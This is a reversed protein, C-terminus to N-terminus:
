KIVIIPFVIADEGYRVRLMYAGTMQNAFAFNVITKGSPLHVNEWLPYVRSAVDVLDISVIYPSGATVNMVFPLTQDVVTRPVEITLGGNLRVMRLAGACTAVTSVAQSQSAVMCESDDIRSTVDLQVPSTWFTQAECRWDVAIPGKLPTEITVRCGIADTTVVAPLMAGSVQERVTLSQENIRLRGVPHRITFSVRAENRHTGVIAATGTVPIISGASHQEPVTITTATPIRYPQVIRTMLTDAGDTWRVRARVTTQQDGVLVDRFEFRLQENPNVLSPLVPGNLPRDRGDVDVRVFEVTRPRAGSGNVVVTGTFSDCAVVTSPLLVGADGEVPEDPPATTDGDTALGYGTLRIITTRREFRPAADHTVHVEATHSGVRRPTFSIPITAEFGPNASRHAFFSAPLAFADADAGTIVIDDITLQENGGVRFMTHTPLMITQNVVASGVHVDFGDITPLTGTGQLVVRVTDHPKWDVTYLVSAERFGVLEPIFQVRLVVSSLSDIALTAASFASIDFAGANGTVASRTLVANSLGRNILVVTSDDSLGVRRDPWRITVSPIEPRVGTVRYGVTAGVFPTSRITDRRERLGTSLPVVCVPVEMRGQPQLVRPLGLRNADVQFEPFMRAIELGTVTIANPGNNVIWASSCATDGLRVVGFDVDETRLSFSTLARVPIHYVLNCAFTLTLRGPVPLPDRPPDFCVTVVLSDGPQITGRFDQPITSFRPDGEFSLADIKLPTADINVIAFQQCAQTTGATVVMESPARFEPADYVYDWERGVDMTDYAQVVIRGNQWPNTVTASLTYRGDPATPGVLQYEYNFTRTRDILVEELYAIATISDRVVGQINGCSIRLDFQPPTREVRQRTDFSMGFVNAYSDAPGVGYMVGSFSGQDCTITNITGPVVRFYGYCLPVGPVRRMMFNADISTVNSGNLKLTPVAQVDAVVIIYYSYDAEVAEPRRILRPAQFLARDAYREIPPVIVMAPDGMSVADNPHVTRMCQAISVPNDSVWYAAQRLNLELFDGRNRITYSQIGGPTYQEIVTPWASPVIRVQDGQPMTAFPITAHKTGWKSVPLLQEVLHDKSLRYAPVLNDFVSARVHGSFVSVPNSSQIITGTIDSFIAANAESSKLFYTQGRNLTVDFPVGAPRGGELDVSPTIVLRTGSKAAVILMCGQRIASNMETNRNSQTASTDYTENPRSVGIYETGLHQVPIAMFSDTSYQMTNLGYVVIPTNSTIVIGKDEPRDVRTVMFEEPVQEVHVGGEPVTVVFEGWNGYQIRVTAGQDSAIYLVLRREPNLQTRFTIENQMFGIVFERGEMSADRRRPLDRIVQSLSDSVAVTALVIVFLIRLPPKM